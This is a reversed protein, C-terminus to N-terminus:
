AREDAALATLLLEREAPTNAGRVRLAAEPPCILRALGARDALRAMPWSAEAEAPLADLAMVMPLHLGAFAAGPGGEALLPALDELRLTPADVALVLLRDCGAARLAAAGALVGGVPGGLAPEDLVVPLGYDHGGVTVMAAAGAEAALDAVRDVARRGSWLMAAKDVGMRSSAGGTLIMAGLQATM